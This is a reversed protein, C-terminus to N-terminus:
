YRFKYPSSSNSNQKSPKKKKKKRKKGSNILNLIYKLILIAFVVLIIKLIISFISNAEIDQGAILNTTYNIGYFTMLFQVLLAVKQM